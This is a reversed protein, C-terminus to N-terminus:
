VADPSAETAKESGGKSKVMKGFWSSVKDPHDTAYKVIWQQTDKNKLFPKLWKPAYNEFGSILEPLIQDLESIDGEVSPGREMNSAKNKYHKVSDELEDIYEDRIKDINKTYKIQKEPRNMFIRAIIVAGIVIPIIWWQAFGVFEEVM